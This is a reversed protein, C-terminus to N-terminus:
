VVTVFIKVPVTFIPPILATVMEPGKENGVDPPVSIIVPKLKPKSPPNVAESDTTNFGTNAPNFVIVQKFAVAVPPVAILQATAAPTPTNLRCSV